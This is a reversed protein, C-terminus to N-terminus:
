LSVLRLPDSPVLVSLFLQSAFSPGPPAWSAASLRQAQDQHCVTLESARVAGPKSCLPHNCSVMHYQAHLSVHIYLHRVQVSTAEQNAMVPLLGLFEVLVACCGAAEVMGGASGESQGGSTSARPRLEQVSKCEM